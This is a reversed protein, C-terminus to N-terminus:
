ASSGNHNREMDMESPLTALRAVSSDARIHIGDRLAAVVVGRSQSLRAVEQRTYPLAELFYPLFWHRHMQVLRRPFPIGEFADSVILLDVDSNLLPENRARSGFLYGEEAGIVQLFRRIHDLLQDRDM